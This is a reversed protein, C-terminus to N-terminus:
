FRDHPIEIKMSQRSLKSDAEQAAELSKAYPWHKALIRAVEDLVQLRAPPTTPDRKAEELAQIADHLADKQQSM